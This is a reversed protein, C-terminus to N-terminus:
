AFMAARDLELRPRETGDRLADVTDAWWQMLIRRAQQYQAKNYAMAVADGSTHALCKEVLMAPAGSENCITSFVKRWGHVCMEGQPIGARHLCNNVSETTLHGNGGRRGYFIFDSIRCAYLEQFIELAQKSLPVTHPKRGKMREAPISFMAAEFDIDQWTAGLLEQSRVGFMPFLRLAAAMPTSPQREAIYAEIKRLMDAVGATDTIAPHGQKDGEPRREMISTLGDAINYKAWQNVKAFRCVGTLIHAVSKAMAYKGAVELTRIIGRLDDFTVDSIRKNGITPYIHLRLRQELTKAYRETTKTAQVRFWEDAVKAFTLSDEKEQRAAEAKEAQKEAAPDVGGARLEFAKNRMLRAEALSLTPYAGLTMEKHKCDQKYKVRWVKKGTPYIVLFLGDSDHLKYSKDKPKAAQVKKDNLAM